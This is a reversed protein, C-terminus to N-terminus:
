MFLLWSKLFAARSFIWVCLFILKSVNIVEHLFFFHLRIVESTSNLYKVLLQYEKIVLSLFFSAIFLDLIYHM